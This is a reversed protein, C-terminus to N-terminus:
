TKIEVEVGMGSILDQLEELDYDCTTRQNDEDKCLIDEATEYPSEMSIEVTVVTKEWVRLAWKVGDKCTYYFKNDRQHITPTSSM